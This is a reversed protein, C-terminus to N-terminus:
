MTLGTSLDPPDIKPRARGRRRCHLHGADRPNPRGRRVLTSPPPTGLSAHNGLSRTSARCTKRQLGGSYLTRQETQGPPPPIGMLSITSLETTKQHNPHGVPLESAKPNPAQKARHSERLNGTIDGSHRPKQVAIKVKAVAAGRTQRYHHFTSNSEWCENSGHKM